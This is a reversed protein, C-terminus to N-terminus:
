FSIYRPPITAAAAIMNIMTNEPIEKKGAGVGTVWDELESPTPMLEEDSGGDDDIVREDGAGSGVVDDVDAMESM